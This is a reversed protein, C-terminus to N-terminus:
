AGRAALVDLVRTLPVQRAALLVLLHYLLDAAEEAVRDDAEERGARVVEGAEELVKAGAAPV